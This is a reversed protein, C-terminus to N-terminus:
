ELLLMLRVAAAFERSGGGCFSCGKANSDFLLVGSCVAGNVDKSQFVSEGFSIMVEDISVVQVIQSM